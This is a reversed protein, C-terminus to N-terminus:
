ISRNCCLNTRNPSKVTGFHEGMGKCGGFEKAMLVLRPNEGPEQDDEHPVRLVRFWEARVTLTAISGDLYM